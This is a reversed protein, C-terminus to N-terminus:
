PKNTGAPPTARPKLYKREARALLQSPKLDFAEAMAIIFKFSPNQKGRELANIYSLSCGLKDAFKQQSMKKKTRLETVVAGLAQAPTREERELTTKIPRAVGL